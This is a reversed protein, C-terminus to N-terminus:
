AADEDHLWVVGDASITLQRGDLQGADVDFDAGVVCPLGFQRSVIAIHSTPGGGQCIVARVHPLIPVISTVSAHETSLITNTLDTEMLELVREVSTVHRLVGTAEGPSAITGSAVKHKDGAM